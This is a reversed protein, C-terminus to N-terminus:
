PTMWLNLTRVPDNRSSHEVRGAPRSGLKVLTLPRTENGLQVRNSLSSPKACHTWQPSNCDVNLQHLASKTVVRNETGAPKRRAEKSNFTKKHAIISSYFHSFSLFGSQSMNFARQLYGVVREFCEESLRFHTVALVAVQVVVVSVRGVHGLRQM